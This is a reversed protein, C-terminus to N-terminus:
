LHLTNLLVKKEQNTKEWRNINVIESNDFLETYFNMAQEADQKQFTLFTSLQGKMNIPIETKLNEQKDTSVKNQKLSSCSFTIILFFLM